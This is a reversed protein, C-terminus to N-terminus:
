LITPSDLEPNHPSIASQRQLPKNTQILGQIGSKAESVKPFMLFCTEAQKDATRM